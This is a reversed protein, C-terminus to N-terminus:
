KLKQYVDSLLEDWLHWFYKKSRIITAIADLVQRPSKQCEPTITVNDLLTQLM